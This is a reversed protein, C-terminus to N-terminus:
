LHQTIKSNPEPAIRPTLPRGPRGANGNVTERDAGKPGKPPFTDPPGRADALFAKFEEDVRM